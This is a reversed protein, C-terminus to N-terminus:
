SEALAEPPFLRPFWYAAADVPMGLRLVGKPSPSTLLRLELLRGVLDRATREGLGSVRVADARTLQGARMAALLVHSAEPRLEGAIARREVWREIRGALGDLEILSGILEVEDLATELFFALFASLGADTLSGRGDLDGRRGEDAAGLRDYYAARNRALGRSVTWLGGGDLGARILAAHTFLRTVRGNGDLFPHIWALRHHSAAVALIRDVAGLRRPDYGEAFRRLLGPVADYPPAVHTAVAVDRSRLEGPEFPVRAGDEHLAHRLRPPLRGYLERHLWCLFDADFVSLEPERRLREELESQVEVHAKAVLQLDHRRSEPELEARMAREIDAVLTGQGEIQNSAYSNMYRLLGALTERTAPALSGSLASARRVLDVAREELEGRRTATLLRRSGGAPKVIGIETGIRLWKM